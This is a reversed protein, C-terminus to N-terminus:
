RWDQWPVQTGSLQELRAVDGRFYDVLRNRLTPDIANEEADPKTNWILLWMEIRKRVHYPLVARIFKRFHRHKVLNGPSLWSVRAKSGGKHFVKGANEPVLSPDVGIFNYIKQLTQVPQSELDETFLVLINAPDFRDYYPQLCAAYNSRALYTYEHETIHPALATEDMALIEDVSSQFDKTTFGNRVAFKYHSYAREIPNRLIAILKVDPVDRKIREAVESTPLGSLNFMYSPSITGWKQEAQAKSFNNDLYKELGQAYATDDAFFPVEKGVPLYIDPHQKLLEHLTTTGARMAGVTLFDLTMKKPVFIM